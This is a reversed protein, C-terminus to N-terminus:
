AIKSGMAEGATVQSIPPQARLKLPRVFPKLEALGHASRWMSVEHLTLGAVANAVWGLALAFVLWKVTAGGYVVSVGILTGSIAVTLFDMVRQVLGRNSDLQAVLTLALVGIAFAFAVWAATTHAFTLSAVVTWGGVLGTVLNSLYKSSMAVEKAIVRNGGM